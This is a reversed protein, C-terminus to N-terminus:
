AMWMFCMQITFIEKSINKFLLNNIQKFNSPIILFICFFISKTISKNEKYIKTQQVPNNSSFALLQYFDIFKFGNLHLNLRKLYKFLYREDISVNTTYIM